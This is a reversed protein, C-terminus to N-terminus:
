KEGYQKNYYELYEGSRISNCWELNALYWNITSSIGNQFNVKPEWGLENKIKTIDMAYRRDHGPRDQVYKILNEGKGLKTLITRVIEINTKECEGGINYSEGFRGRNFVAWIGSCHDQVHIWDRVNMGDGYVPLDRDEIANLIMLPILKEPFQKPGYNNSCRTILVPLNHTVFYAMVFHDASAKSASYPSNPQINNDERFSGESGLSGYVEDTSVQLFKQIKHKKAVDLLNVTGFVNNMLFPNSDMISRDVHSEAAFNIIADISHEAFINEVMQRDCIDGKIFKYNKFENAFSLNSLNGCYSLNDLVILNIDRIGEEVLLYEIFNSGIFGAAGTILINRINNNNELM